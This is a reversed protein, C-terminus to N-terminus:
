SLISKQHLCGWDLSERCFPWSKVPSWLSDHGQGVNGDPTIWILEETPVAECETVAVLGSPMLQLGHCVTAFATADRSGLCALFPPSHMGVLARHGWPCSIAWDPVPIMVPSHRYHPSALDPLYSTQDGDDERQPPLGVGYETHTKETRNQVTSSM